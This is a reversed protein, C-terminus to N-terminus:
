HLPLSKLFETTERAVQERDYDWFIIHDSNDLWVATKEASGVHAFARAATGPDTVNDQTSHLLLTPCQVRRLVEPNRAREALAMATRFARTPIWPYCLIERSVERRKVPQRDPPNHIWRIIPSLLTAWREATLLYFWKFTVAYYPAALVLGDLPVQAAALTALAGGMSHGCLVVTEHRARLARLEELVAGLLEEASTEEFLFPSRGHGPLLMVRVHWGQAAVRDPLEHFNNGTGSFGHVFLMAKPSLPTGLERPEAGTIIGTQPDRAVANDYRRVDDASGLFKIM